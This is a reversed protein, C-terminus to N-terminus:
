GALSEEIISHQGIHVSVFYKFAKWALSSHKLIVYISVAREKFHCATGIRFYPIKVNVILKDIEYSSIGSFFDHM